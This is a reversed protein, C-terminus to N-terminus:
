TSKELKIITAFNKQLMDQFHSFLSKYKDKADVVCIFSNLKL